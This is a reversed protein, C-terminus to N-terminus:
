RVGFIERTLLMSNVGRVLSANSALAGLLSYAIIVLVLGILAQQTGALTAALAGYYLFAMASAISWWGGLVTMRPQRATLPVVHDTYDEHAQRAVVAPDDRDTLTWGPPPMTRAASTDADHHEAM